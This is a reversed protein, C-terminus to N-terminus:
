SNQDQGRDVQKYSMKHVAVYGGRDRVGSELGGMEDRSEGKHLHRRMSTGLEFGVM